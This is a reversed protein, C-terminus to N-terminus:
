LKCGVGINFSRAEGSILGPGPYGGARRTAYVTDFVNNVSGQITYKGLFQYKFSWDAVNFSAIKGVTGTNNPLLSNSADTFFDSSHRVQFTMSFGKLLYTAGFNHIQEPANEVKNNKLNGETLVINPATGKIVTTKFDKYRADTFALSAFLSLEGKKCRNFAKCPNFEVFIEAGKHQAEGLNTRFQYTNQTLDNNIFQRLTGIKNNYQVFFLSADFNLFEGVLGRYGLDANFGSADRLNSDIVDITNSTLLDSYLVPRYAQAINGYFSTSKLQYQLGAATLIVNRQASQPVLFVDKENTITALGAVSSVINEYRIGYTFSLKKTIKFANEAFIAINKTEFDLNTPYKDGKLQLSFDTGTDGKGRQFRKTNSQYLKAGFALNHKKDFAKYQWLGRGEAAYNTYADRDLQRNNYQNTKTNISDAVNSAAVFGVSNREGQLAMLKLNFTLNQTAKYDVNVNGIAWKVQFWNRNRLSQYPNEAFQADTLGGSQQNLYSMQTFEGSIKTKATLTYQLFAHSNRSKYDSNERSTAGSRSQNYAYYSWGKYNGGIANFSSLMNFSGVSNQTEFTLKKDSHERKLQYNLLGGFQPGFQLAAAGRVVQIKEVAEMAPNYYAEPYGFIDSAIDYGNQRTNFEWSRNPSLGRTAVSVQLGSGDNEWISIGPVRAFIQRTNNSALNANLTSLRLLENKKATFLTVNEVETLREPTPRRAIIQLLDLVQTTDQALLINSFLVFLTVIIFTNKQM